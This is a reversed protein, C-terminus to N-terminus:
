KERWVDLKAKFAKFEPYQVLVDDLYKLITPIDNLFSPKNDRIALRSFVGLNKVQRQVGMWDFWRKFVKDDVEPIIGAITMIKKYDFAWQYVKETPWSIYLDRLLSVLDYTAPGLVADQFDLVGVAPGYRLLNRSHYDKHVFVQPQEFANESLTKSLAELMKNDNDTLKIKKHKTLYWETFFTFERVFLDETFHPLDLGDDIECSQIDLLTDMAQGYLEDVTKDNLLPLFTQEGLDSLLMFGKFYNVAKVEPVCVNQLALLNAISVFAHNNEYEPDSDVAILNKSNTKLRYYKRFSADGSLPMLENIELPVQEDLWTKLQETRNTDM